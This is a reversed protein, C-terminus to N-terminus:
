QVTVTLFKHKNKSSRPLYQRINVRDEGDQLVTNELEKDEESHKDEDSSEAESSERNEKIEGEEEETSLVSFRSKSM